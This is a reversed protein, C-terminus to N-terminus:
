KKAIIEECRKAMKVKDDWSTKAKDEDCEIFADKTKHFLETIEMELGNFLLVYNDKDIPKELFKSVEFLNKSYDGLREADKVVSM